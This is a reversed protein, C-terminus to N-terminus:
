EGRQSCFVTMGVPTFYQKLPVAGLWANKLIRGEQRLQRYGGNLASKTDPTTFYDGADIQDRFSYMAVRHQPEIASLPTNQAM